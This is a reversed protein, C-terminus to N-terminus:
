ILPDRLTWHGSAEDFVDVADQPRQYEGVWGGVAMVRGDALPLTAPQQRGDRLGDALTWRDTLPDYVDVGTIFTGDAQPVMGGVVLVRGSPLLEMSHCCREHPMPAVQRWTGTRPDFVEPPNDGTVLVEGSALRIAAHDVRPRHMPAVETWTNSAPDYVEAQALAGNRGQWGGAVLVRDDTLLTATHSFRSQHMPPVSTWTETRPDFIEASARPQMNSMGMQFGTSGAVLVRGDALLTATHDSRGEAMPATYHWTGSAASYM